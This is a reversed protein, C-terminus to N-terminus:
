RIFKSSLIDIMLPDIDHKVSADRKLQAKERVCQKCTYYRGDEAGKKKGFEDLSKVKECKTCKKKAICQSMIPKGHQYAKMDDEDYM